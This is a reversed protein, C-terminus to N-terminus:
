QPVQEVEIRGAASLGLIIESDNSRLTISDAIENRNAIEITAGLLLGHEEAFQLFSTDQDSIRAVSVRDGKECVSLRILSREPLKGESTPIPDGHPDVTPFGLLSDM